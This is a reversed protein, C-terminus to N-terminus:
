VGLVGATNLADELQVAVADALLAAPGALAAAEAAEANAEPSHTPEARGRDGQKEGGAAGTVSRACGGGSRGRRAERARNGRSQARRRGGRRRRGRGALRSAGDRAVDG